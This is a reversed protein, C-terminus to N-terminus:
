NRLWAVFGLNGCLSSAASVTTLITPTTINTQFGGISTVGRPKGSGTGAGGSITPLYLEVFEIDSATLNGLPVRRNHTGGIVVECDPDIRGTGFRLALAQLDVAGMNNLDERTLFKSAAPSARLMRLNLDFLERGYVPDDGGHHPVLWVSIKRGEDEPVSVGVTQRAYGDKDIRLMYQGPRLPMYFAGTSDTYATESGGLATVKVDPMARFATDGIIGSLGLEDATTVMAALTNRYRIMVMRAPSGDPGASVMQVGSLLGVARASLEHTGTPISDFRFSGDAGTLTQRQLKRIMVTVNPLPMSDSDVVVGTVTHFVTSRVEVTQARLAATGVLSILCAVVCWRIVTPAVYTRALIHLRM